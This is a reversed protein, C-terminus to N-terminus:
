GGDIFIPLSEIAVEGHFLEEVEGCRYYINERIYGNSQNTEITISNENISTITDEGNSNKGLLMTNFEDARDMLALMSDWNTPDVIIRTRDMKTVESGGIWGDLKVGCKPCKDPQGRYDDMWTGCRPCFVGEPCRDPDWIANFIVEDM